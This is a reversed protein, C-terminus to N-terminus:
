RLGMAEQARKLTRDAIDAARLAGRDLLRDLEAPDEMLANYRKQIPEVLAIVADAVEKKLHGYLKGEFHAEIAAESEGTVAGYISLLNYVGPREPDFRVETRSDTVARAFKKRIRSPPDLLGIVGNPNPDSKSMKSTPDTLSMIRAGTKSIRAEPLVFVEGFRHNFSQAIDRCLEIHQRQDDGVPVHTTEYLLIDAAQLVPYTFLGAGANGKAKVSKEKFHTMRNLWGLPTICDLLWTLEAHARVRSQVFVISTDPDIGAAVYLAASERIRTRLVSVDYPVTLAHLDVVCFICSEERQGRVWQRLAGLYNGLHLRGSPQMGSFIRRAPNSTDSRSM